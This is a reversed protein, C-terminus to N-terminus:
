TEKWILAEQPSKLRSTFVMGRQEQNGSLEQNFFNSDKNQYFPAQQCLGM